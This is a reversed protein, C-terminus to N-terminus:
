AQKEVNSPNKNMGSARCGDTTSMPGQGHWGSAPAPKVPYDFTIEMKTVKDGDRTEVVGNPGFEYDDSLREVTVKWNGIKEGKLWCSQVLEYTEANAEHAARVLALHSHATTYVSVPVREAKSREGNVRRIVAFWHRTIAALVDDPALLNDDNAAEIDAKPLFLAVQQGVIPSAIRRRLKNFWGRM